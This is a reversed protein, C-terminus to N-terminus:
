STMHWVVGYRGNDDTGAMPGHLIRRISFVMGPFELNDTDSIGDFPPPLLDCCLVTQRVCATEPRRVLQGRLRLEGIRDDVAGHVVMM